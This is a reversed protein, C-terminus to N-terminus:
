TYALITWHQIGILYLSIIHNCMVVYRGDNDNNIEITATSPSLTLQQNSSQLIVSFFEDGEVQVDNVINITACSRRSCTSFDLTQTESVYDSSDTVVYGDDCHIM